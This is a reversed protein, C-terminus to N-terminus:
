PLKSAPNKMSAQELQHKMDQIRKEYEQKLTKTHQASKSTINKLQQEHHIKLSAIMDATQEDFERRMRASVRESEVKLAAEAEKLKQGM